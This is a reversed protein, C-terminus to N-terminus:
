LFNCKESNISSVTLFTVKNFLIIVLIHALRSLFLIVYPTSKFLGSDRFYATYYM